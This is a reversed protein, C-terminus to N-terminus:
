LTLTNATLVDPCFSFFFGTLNLQNSSIVYTINYLPHDLTVEIYFSYSVPHVTTFCWGIISKENWIYCRSTDYVSKYSKFTNLITYSQIMGKYDGFQTRCLCELYIFTHAMSGHPLSMTYSDSKTHSVRYTATM